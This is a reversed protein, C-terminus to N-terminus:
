ESRAASDVPSSFGFSGDPKPQHGDVTKLPTRKKKKDTKEEAWVHGIPYDSKSFAHNESGNKHPFLVALGHLRCFSLVQGEGEPFLESITGPKVFAVRGPERAIRVIKEHISNTM